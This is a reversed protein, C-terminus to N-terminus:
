WPISNTVWAVFFAYSHYHHCINITSKLISSVCFPFSLHVFIFSLCPTVSIYRSFDEVVYMFLLLLLKLFWLVICPFYVGFGLLCQYDPNGLSMKEKKRGHIGTRERSQLWTECM